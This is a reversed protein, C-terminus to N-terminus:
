LNDKIVKRIWQIYHSVKGFVASKFHGCKDNEDTSVAFSTVGCLYWKLQKPEQSEDMEDEYDNEYADSGFINASSEGACIMPGGSDGVCPHIPGRICLTDSNIKSKISNSEVEDKCAQNSSIRVNAMQLITPMIFNDEDSSSMFGHGMIKCQTNIKVQYDEKPLCAPMLKDYVDLQEHRLEIIAIDNLPGPTVGKIKAEFETMAPIYRPHIHVNKAKVKVTNDQKKGHRTRPAQYDLGKFLVLTNRVRKAPLLDDYCHAATLIFRKHILTGGCFTESDSRNNGAIVVQVYWPWEKHDANQGNAVYRTITPKLVGCEGFDDEINPEPIKSSTELKFSPRNLNQQPKFAQPQNFYHNSQFYQAPQPQMYPSPLQQMLGFPSPNSAVPSRFGQGPGTNSFFQAHPFFPSFQSGPVSRRAIRSVINANVNDSRCSHLISIFILLINFISM